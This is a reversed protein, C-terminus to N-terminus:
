FSAPRNNTLSKQAAKAASSTPIMATKASGHEYRTLGPIQDLPERRHLRLDAPFIATGV